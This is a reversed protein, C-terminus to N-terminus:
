SVKIKAAEKLITPVNEWDQCGSTNQDNSITQFILDSFPILGAETDADPDLEKHEKAKPTSVHQDSGSSLGM